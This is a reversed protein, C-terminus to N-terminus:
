QEIAISDAGYYPRLQKPLIIAKESKSFHNELIAILTRGLALGSGNLTHCLENKNTKTNKYRALMRRAQFDTCNSCSSIERYTQQSPLWVEIDFTSAASFGTDASCLHVTRFPLELKELISEAQSVLKTHYIDSEEPKTILVLEVKEFQHQRILGNVDKGYSGAESRFCPSYSVFLMPLEKESIISDAVLNTLPVEATPILYRLPQENICFVDQKFKPLQGTGILAQENVLLPINIETYGAQIHTDLMFQILARNLKALAGHLVVFRSSSIKAARAFDMSLPFLDDHSPTIDSRPTGWTRKVINDTESKGYPVNDNLVNPITLLFNHYESLLSKEKVELEAITKKLSASEDLLTTADVGNKKAEGILKANQNMNSQHQNLAITLNKRELELKSIYGQDIQYGRKALNQAVQALQNRIKAVDIM